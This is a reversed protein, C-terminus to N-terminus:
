KRLLWRQVLKLYCDMEVEGTEVRCFVKSLCLFFFNPQFFALQLIISNSNNITLFIAPPLTGQKKWRPGTM